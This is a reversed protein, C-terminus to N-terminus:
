AIGRLKARATRHDPASTFAQHMASWLPTRRYRDDLPLARQPLGDERKRYPSNDLWLDGNAINWTLVNLLAPSDLMVDLFARGLDAVARDRKAFDAPYGRDDVDLETVELALGMGALEALFNSLRKADFPKTSDLHAQLGFRKVPVGRKLLGEMTKLVRTRRAEHWDTGMEVDDENWTGAIDPATDHLIQFALDIYSPGLADLWPSRGLGDPRGQDNKIIENVVDWSELHGRYRGAMGSIWRRMFIEAGRATRIEPRVWDPLAEYWILCHGRMRQGNRKAFALTEDGGTFSVADPQPLVYFMKMENECVLMGCERALAAGYAPDGRLPSINVASGYTLGTRAAAAQLSDASWSGTHRAANAMGPVWAFAAGAALIRRRSPHGALRPPFANSM